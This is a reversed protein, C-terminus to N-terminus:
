AIRSRCEHDLPVRRALWQRVPDALDRGGPLLEGTLLHQEYLLWHYHVLVADTLTIPQGLSQATAHLHIPVNYTPPAISIVANKCTFALSLVVQSVGWWQASARGVFGMSAYVNFRASRRPAIAGERLIRLMREACQFYGADRRVAVMGGNYSAKVRVRDVTTEVWPICQLEVGCAKCALRWFEDCADESGSTCIGKMDVPRAMVDGGALSFDPAGSFFMDNDLSVLVRANVSKEAWVCAALRGLPGYPERKDLLDEVVVEVGMSKLVAACAKGMARNPRPSVAFVPCTAYAGGFRRLSEVLLIAQSELKGQEVSIVFACDPM